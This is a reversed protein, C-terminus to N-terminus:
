NRLVRQYFESYGIYDVPILFLAFLLLIHSACAYPHYSMRLYLFRACITM